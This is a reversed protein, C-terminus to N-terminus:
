RAPRPTGSVVSITSQTFNGGTFFYDDTGFRYYVRMGDASSGVGQLCAGQWSDVAEVCLRTGVGPIVRTEIDDHKNGKLFMAGGNRDFSFGRGNQGTLLMKDEAPNAAFFNDRLEVLNVLPSGDPAIRVRDEPTACASVFLAASILISNRIKSFM